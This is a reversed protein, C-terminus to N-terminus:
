RRLRRLAGALPVCLSALSLDIALQAHKALEVIGDGFLAALAVGATGAACALAFGQAPRSARRVIAVLWVLWPLALVIRASTESRGFASALSPVSAPLSGYSANEVVGLYDPLWPLMLAPIRALARALAPPDSVLLWWLKARPWREVGTCTKEVPGQMAYVTKGAYAVCAPELALARVVRDRNSTEKLLVSLVFDARNVVRVGHAMPTDRAGNAIQIAAGLAGGLFLALAARRGVRGAGLALAAAVIAPLALHQFKSTALAFAGAAALALTARTPKALAALAGLGALYLGFIAAAEAYFTPLYLTNGPDMAVLAFWALHAIALDARGERLLWRTAWAALAFWALLRLEALRRVSHVDRGTLKGGIKWALAAPATFALDSTLMCIGDPIPQFAFRSLPAAPNGRDVPVGPRAPALGVCASYRIQDYSNALALLPEHQVLQVGRAVGLVGLVMLVLRAWFPLPAAEAM